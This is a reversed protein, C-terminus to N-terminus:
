EVIHLPTVQPRTSTPMKIKSFILTNRFPKCWSKGTSSSPVPPHQYLHNHHPTHQYPHNHRSPHQYPTHTHHVDHGVSRDDDTSCDDVVIVHTILDNPLGRLFEQGLGLGPGSALGLGPTSGLGQEKSTFSSSSSSSATAGDSSGGAGGATNDDGKSGGGFGRELATMTELFHHLRKSSTVGLTIGHHHNTIVTPSSPTPTPTPALGPEQALGLRLGPGPALGLGSTLGPEIQMTRGIGVGPLLQVVPPIPPPSLSVLPFFSRYLGALVGKQGEQDNSWTQSDKNKDRDKSRDRDKNSCSVNNDRSHNDRDSSRSTTEEKQLRLQQYQLWQLWHKGATRRKDM